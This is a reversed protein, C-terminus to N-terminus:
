TSFRLFIKCESETGIISGLVRAGTKIIIGTNKFFKKAEELKEDNVVLQCKSAKVHYGFNGLSVNKDIKKELNSLKGVANADDAYRKQTVNDVSLFKILSIIALNYMAM